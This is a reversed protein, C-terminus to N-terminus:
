SPPEFDCDEVRSRCRGDALVTVVQDGTKLEAVSRLPQLSNVRHTLSYGRALVSLPSLAETARVFSAFRERRSRLDNWVAARARLELEDIWQRRQKHIQHPKALVSRTAFSDLRQRISKVRNRVSSSARRELQALTSRLESESPLALQAAQTPTLARVDAALDSLTVDIEHGVASITPIECAVLARVVSEENFCWLDEVSGGGRGVVLIDLSPQLSQAIRIGQVIEQAASEGQVRAPIVVLEFDSWRTRAAELFDHLAAGSPSTVFGIRKPFKPLPRKREDAFLGEKALKQHLQQFALQLPGLGQPQLKNVILQYSGRPSYVEIAGNCVISMGDKLKFPLKQAASRWMVGRIQSQEDKLTFYLHGSSPRSLDSIEGEAWVQPISQELINKVLWNLQSISLPEQACHGRPVGVADEDLNM